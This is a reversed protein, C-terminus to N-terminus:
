EVHCCASCRWQPSGYDTPDEIRLLAIAGCNPCFLPGFTEHHLRDIAVAIAEAHSAHLESLKQLKEKTAQSLELQAIYRNM